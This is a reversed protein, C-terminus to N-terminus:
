DDGSKLTVSTMVDGERLTQVVDLGSTVTGFTAYQTDLFSADALTIYFQCSASDPHQSRAMAVTGPVGHKHKGTIELPITKGSGGTGNGAPDGGQIVFGSVFRHFKLGNYFGKEVLGAFNSTTIPAHEEDLEFQIEGKSTQLVVTRNSM